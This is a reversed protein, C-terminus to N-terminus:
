QEFCYLRNLTDCSVTAIDTYRGDVFDSHGVRASGSNSTWGGCDDTPSTRLGATSTNTWVQGGTIVGRETKNPERGAGPASIIGDVLDAWNNVLTTGLVNKYPVPSQFLREAANVTNTSLWAKFTGGLGAAAAHAQCKADAGALGGLQAASYTCSTQFWCKSGPLGCPAVEPCSGDLECAPPQCSNDIPTCTPAANVNNLCEFSALPGCGGNNTACEDIDECTRGGVGDPICSMRAVDGCGGNNFCADLVCVPATAERAGCVVGDKGCQWTPVPGLLPASGPSIPSLPNATPVAWEELAGFSLATFSAPNVIQADSLGTVGMISQAPIDATTWAYSGCITGGTQVGVFAKVPGSEPGRRVAAYSTLVDGYELRGILGGAAGSGGEGVAVSVTGTAYSDALTMGNAANGFLAFTGILGGVNNDGRVAGTAFSEYVGRGASTIRNFGVLGGVHIRGTVRGTAYCRRTLSGNLGALGGVGHDGTIDGTAFSDEFTGGSETGGIVGGVYFGGSVRGSSSCRRIAPGGYGLIGGAWTWAAIQITGPGTAWTVDASSRCDTISGGYSIGTIGAAGNDVATGVRPGNANSRVTGAMTARLIVSPDQSHGAIGGVTGNSEIAGSVSVDQITGTNFAAIGGAVHRAKVNVNELNLNKVVGNMGIHTFLGVPLEVNGAIGDYRLNLLRYNQGDFM